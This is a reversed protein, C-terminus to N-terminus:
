RRVRQYRSQVPTEHKANMDAARAKGVEQEFRTRAGPELEPRLQLAIVLEAALLWALANVFFPPYMPITTIRRTYHLLPADHDTLLVTATGASDAELTYPVETELDPTRGGPWLHRPQILDTPLSYTYTWDDRDDVSLRALEARGTAWSWWWSALAVDRQTDYLVACAEAETSAESLSQITSKVGVRILAMNCIEVASTAM